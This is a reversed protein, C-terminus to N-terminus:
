SISVPTGINELTTSDSPNFLPVPENNLGAWKHCSACESTAVFIDSSGTDLDITLPQEDSGFYLKIAYSMDQFDELKFNFKSKSGSTQSYNLGSDKKSYV